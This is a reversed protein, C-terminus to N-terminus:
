NVQSYVTVDVYTGTELISFRITSEGSKLATVEFTVSGYEDLNNELVTCNVLEEDWQFNLTYEGDYGNTKVQVFITDPTDTTFTATPSVILEIDEISPLKAVVKVDKYVNSDKIYIRLSTEGSKLATITLPLVWGSEQAGWYTDVISSDEEHCSITPSEGKYGNTNIKVKITVSEEGVEVQSASLEISMVDFPSVTPTPSPIVNSVDISTYVDTGEIYFEVMSDGCAVPTILFEATTDDIWDVFTVDVYNDNWAFSFNKDWEEYGNTDVSIRVKQEKGDLNIKTKSPTLVINEISPLASTVNVEITDRQVEDEGKIFFTIVSEGDAIPVIGFEIVTDSVWEAYTVDVYEDDYVWTVWFEEECGNADVTLQIKEEKGKLYM